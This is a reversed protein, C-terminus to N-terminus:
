ESASEATWRALRIRYAREAARLLLVRRMVRWAMAVLVSLHALGFIALAPFADLHITM